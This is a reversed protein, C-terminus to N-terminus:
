LIRESLFDKLRCDGRKQFCDEAIKKVLLVADERDKAIGIIVPDESIFYKKQLDGAGRIELQDVDNKSLTIVFIGPVKEQMKIKKLIKQPHKVKEGIYLDPYFKM